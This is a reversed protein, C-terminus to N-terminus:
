WYRHPHMLRWHQWCGSYAGATTVAFRAHLNIAELGLQCAWTEPCVALVANHYLGQRPLGEAAPHQRATHLHNPRLPCPSSIGPCIRHMGLEQFNGGNAALAHSMGTQQGGSRELIVQPISSHLPPM